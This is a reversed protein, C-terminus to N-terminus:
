QWPEEGGTRFVPTVRDCSDPAHIPLPPLYLVPLLPPLPPLPPLLLPLPILIKMSVFRSIMAAEHRTVVNAVSSACSRLSLRGRFPTLILVM